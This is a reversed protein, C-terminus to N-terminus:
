ETENTRSRLLVVGLAAFWVLQTIGFVAGGIEALAPIASLVGATGVVLGLYNLLRRLAGARIAAWSVLFTWLGGVIENGGGLGDVVSSIAVWTTAAQAPDTGFLEVVTAMGINAVMGSAIVLGAWLLGFATAIRMSPGVRDVLREHLALVLVVLLIGFVVYTILNATYIATQNAVLLEVQQLPDSVSAFDLIFLFFVIAGLYIAAELLAAVGGVTQLDTATTRPPQIEEPTLDSTATM